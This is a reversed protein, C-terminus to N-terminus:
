LLGCGCLMYKAFSTSARVRPVLETSGPHSTLLLSARLIRGLAIAYCTRNLFILMFLLSRLVDFAAVTNSSVCLKLEFLCSSSLLQGPRLAFLSLCTTDLACCDSLTRWVSHCTRLSHRTICMLRLPHIVTSM